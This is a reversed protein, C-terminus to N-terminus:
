VGLYAEAVVDSALVDTPEGRAIVRGFDLVVVEDCTAVVLDIDHEVLLVGVDFRGPVERLREALRTSEEETLGAAPEDLLVFAPRAALCGLIELRRRMGTDIGFVPTDPDPGDLFALLEGVAAPDLHGGAALRLYDGATLSPVTRETQFTRRLGLQARRFAPMGDLVKTGLTVTGTDQRHFGTIVDVLTSKGAGNPGILGLIRGRALAVDVDELAVVAGYRVGIGSARLVAGDGSSRGSIPPPPPGAPPHLYVVARTEAAPRRRRALIEALGRGGQALIQTAGIAFLIPGVDQPINLRRLLEPFFAGLVGGVVAGGVHHAGVFVGIVFVILSDVPEVNRANLFGLQAALLGGALGAVFASVAFASLKVLPVSLGLAATARESHRVAEWAAGLRTRRTLILAAAVLLFIAATFLLFAREGDFLAPRAVPQNTRAGPFGQVFLASSVAVAFGLTVVALNVGRLRLAPLGIVVGVPVAALAGVLLAIPFPLSTSLGIAGVVWGGIGAFTVQCLSVMGARGYVVGVSSILLASIYASSALFAWFSPLLAFLVTGLALSGLLVLDGRRM